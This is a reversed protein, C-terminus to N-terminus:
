RGGVKQSQSPVPVPSPTPRGLPLPGDAAAPRAAPRRASRRSGPAYTRPAPDHLGVLREAQISVAEEFVNRIFRGNGFNAPRPKPILARLRDTAGDALRFGQKEAILTFIEVLEDDGYDTFTLTKPFRSALGPNSTLFREMELPYGAVIVVVEDRRDEMLKLLTAVAEVGFDRHSDPPILSYAEDIFLM